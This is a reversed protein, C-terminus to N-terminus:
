EEISWSIVSEYEMNNILPETVKLLIGKDNDFTVNTIKVNGDNNTGTYVLTKSDSLTTMDGNEDIFVLADKLVIGSSSTLDQNISAYLKWNSSNVRSDTVTVTLENNRPCLIPDLRIPDFKFNVIKSAEDLVLEGSYVVQIKKTHYILEDELKATLTIITGVPLTTNYNYSFAGNEDALAITTVDNYTILISANKSTIGTLSTDTDTLAKMHIQFDGITLIKKTQFIFNDLSPLSNLEETTFNNSSITVASNTFTGNIISSEKEKYWSYTPLASDSIWSDKDVLTNFLNIRSFNFEFPITSNTYIINAKSNYLMVKYPNNLVFGSNASSFYINYNSTNINTYDNIIELSSNNNMTIKGYSYWTPYSGNSKTQRLTFSANQDILTTGTGFTGYGMGSASTVTFKSNKGITFLLNNVGYILERNESTFNVVANSLITFSPDSNRFWFSSNATSKHVITTNGGIEIKNCEAVENGAAYNEQITINSNIFRTLGSPHFSIQPGVYTINNYETVVDKYSNGEPVYIVGYYNYGTINMNQVIITKLTAQATISDSASTSKKDILNHRVGEYTGDIIINIKTNSIKIGNTLTIDSGFYIYTYTNIEELVNKLESSDYVVVTTENIITM